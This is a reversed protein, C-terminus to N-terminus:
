TATSRETASIPDREEILRAFAAGFGAAQREQAAARRETERALTTPDFGDDRLQSDYHGVWDAIIRETAELHFQLGWAREGLRFAQTADAAGAFLEADPPLSFGYAHWEFVRHRASLSAYLQDEVGAATATLEVWGIAPRALRRVRGGGVQALLQAGLCLGLTPLGRDLAERLLRRQDQLWGYRHDDDPNAAGGLALLADVGELSPPAPDVGTRWTVSEIGAAQLPRAFAGIPCLEQTECVLARM